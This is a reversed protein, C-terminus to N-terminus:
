DIKPQAIPKVVQVEIREGGSTLDTANIETPKGRSKREIDVVTELASTVSVLKNILEAVTLRDLEDACEPNSELKKILAEAPLSLGRQFKKATDIHRKAMNEIGQLEGVMKARDMEADYEHVREKWSWKTSFATITHISKGFYDAVKFHRRELGLNRYYQFYKFAVTPEGAQRACLDTKDIPQPKYDM